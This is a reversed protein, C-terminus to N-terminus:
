CFTNDGGPLRGRVCTCSMMNIKKVLLCRVAGCHRRAGWGRLAGAEDTMGVIVEWLSMGALCFAGFCVCKAFYGLLSGLLCENVLSETVVAM